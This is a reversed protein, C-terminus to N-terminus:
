GARQMEVGVPQTLGAIAAFPDGVDVGAPAVDRDSGAQFAGLSDHDAEIFDAPYELGQVEDVFEPGIDRCDCAGNVFPLQIFKKIAARRFDNGTGELRAQGHREHESV